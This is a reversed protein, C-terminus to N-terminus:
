DAVELFDTPLSLQRYFYKISPLLVMGVLNPLLLPHLTLAHAVAYLVVDDVLPKVAGFCGRDGMIVEIRLRQRIDM